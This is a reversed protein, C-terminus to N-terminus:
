IEAASAAAAAASFESRLGSRSETCCRHFSPHPFGYHAGGSTSSQRKKQIQNIVMILLIDVNHKVTSSLQVLPSADKKEPGGMHSQKPISHRIQNRPRQIIISARAVGASQAAAPIHDPLGLSDIGAVHINRHKVVFM